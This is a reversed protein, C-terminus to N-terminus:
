YGTFNETIIDKAKLKSTLITEMAKNFFPPGSLYFICEFFDPRYRNIMDADIYGTEGSWQKKEEQTLDTLTHVVMLKKLLVSEM